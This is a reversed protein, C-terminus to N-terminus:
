QIMDSSIQRSNMDNSVNFCSAALLLDAHAHAAHWGAKLSLWFAECGGANVRRIDLKPYLQIRPLLGLLPRIDHFNGYDVHKLCANFGAAIIELDIPWGLPHKQQLVLRNFIVSLWAIVSHVSLRLISTVNDVLCGMISFLDSSPASLCLTTPLVTCRSVCCCGLRLPSEYLVLGQVHRTLVSHNCHVAPTAVGHALHRGNASFYRCNDCDADSYWGM